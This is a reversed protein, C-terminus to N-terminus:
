LLLIAILVMILLALVDNNAEQAARRTKYPADRWVSKKDSKLLRGRQLTVKIGIICLLLSILKIM